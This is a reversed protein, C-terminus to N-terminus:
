EDVTTGVAANPRVRPDPLSATSQEGIALDQICVRGDTLAEEIRVLHSGRVVIEGAFIEIRVPVPDAGHRLFAALPVM